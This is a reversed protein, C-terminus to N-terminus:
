YSIIDLMKEYAKPWKHIKEKLSIDVRNKQWIKLKSSIWNICKKENTVWERTTINSFGTGFRLDHVTLGRNEM